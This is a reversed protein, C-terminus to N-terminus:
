FWTDVSFIFFQNKLYKKRLDYHEDGKGTYFDLVWVSEWSNLYFFDIKWRWRQYMTRIRKPAFCGWWTADKWNDYDLDFALENQFFRNNQNKKRIKMSKLTEEFLCMKTSWSIFIIKSGYFYIASDAFGGLQLCDWSLFCCRWM